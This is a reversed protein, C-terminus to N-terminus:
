LLDKNEHINGIVEYFNAPMGDIADGYFLAPILRREHENISLFSGNMFVIKGTSRGQNEKVIDGEYIDVKNKDQLGTFQMVNVIDHRYLVNAEPPVGQMYTIVANPNVYLVHYIMTRGDWARFKIERVRNRRRIREDRDFEEKQKIQLRIYM